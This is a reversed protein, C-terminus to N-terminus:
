LVFMIAKYSIMAREDRLVGSNSSKDFILPDSMEEERREKEREITASERLSGGNYCSECRRIAIDESKQSVAMDFIDVM